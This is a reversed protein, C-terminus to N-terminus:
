DDTYGIRIVETGGDDNVSIAGKKGDIVINGVIIKDGLRGSTQMDDFNMERSNGRSALVQSSPNSTLTRRFFGNFGADSYSYAAPRAM